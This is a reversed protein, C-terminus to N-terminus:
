KRHKANGARRRMWGEARFYIKRVFEEDEEPTGGRGYAERSVIEVMREAEERSVCSLVGSLKESFDEEMGNYGTMYGAAHLRKLLRGFVERCNMREVKRKRRLKGYDVFLPLLILSEALVAAIVLLLDHYRDLDIHLSFGAGMSGGESTQETGADETRVENTGSANINLGMESILGELTGTDLGPYSTSYSGDSSPTVEVPTWGYDKMYIETWAHASEDTVEAVWTGDEQRVFDSPRLAYGSAYRAPYGCLRYMLTAASAFHVCYGEHNDFLFYEVIDENIPTRGPTLTYSAGSQLAALIFATAEDLSASEEDRCLESLRPLLEEPVATYADPIEAMYADRVQIYWDKIRGFRGPLGDWRVNMESEEYYLFGYGENEGGQQDLWGYYYPTYITQYSQNEHTILVVRPDPEGEASARNMAFYMNNYMNRIWAEWEEWQLQVAMERFITEDDAPEWSGGTYEGGTFGKLYLVEGPQQQLTVTLRTEGTRYNNGSSVYGNAVSDEAGRTIRQMSRSVFGEGTYVLDSLERGWISTIVVSSCVLVCLVAGMFASCRVPLSIRKEESSRQNKMRKGATHMTWFLIQFMLGLIVPAIGAEIGLLPASAMVVTVAAYPLWHQKWVLELIFFCVSLVDVMLLLAYTVNTEGQATPDALSGALASMQATFLDWRAVGVTGCVTLLLVSGKLIWKRRATFLVYMVACILVASIFVLGASFSIGPLSRAALIVAGIGAILVALELLTQKEAQISERIKTLRCRKM